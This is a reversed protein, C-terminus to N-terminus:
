DHLKVMTKGGHWLVILPRFQFTLHGILQTNPLLQFQPQIQLHFKSMGPLSTLYSAIGYVIGTTMPNTFGIQGELNLSQFDLTSEILKVWEQSPIKKWSRKRMRPKSKAKATRTKTRREHSFWPHHYPGFEITKYQSSRIQIGFRTTGVQILGNWKRKELTDIYKGKIHIRYPLILLLGLGIVFSVVVWILINM